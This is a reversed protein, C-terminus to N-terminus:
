PNITFDITEKEVDPYIYDIEQQIEITKQIATIIRCYQKIEGLTLAKGKREKLWKDCVQYGGIFYKWVELPAKGFYQLENIWIESRSEDHRVKGILNDGNGHFKAIPKDLEPSCLLHLDVLREGLKAMKLFLKVDKTFPIRPFDMKLFQAYRTRYSNSYLVAYIYTFIKEPIVPKIYVRALGLTIEPALNPQKIGYGIRPEFLFFSSGSHSKKPASTEQYTYLPFLYSISVAHTISHADIVSRTVFVPEIGSKDMQRSTILGLNERMMHKMVEPRPRCHFGQSKSTYYTYRVDFPRYLIPIIHKRDPGSEKIDEKAWSIKWDQSDKELKYAERLSREDLRLLRKVTQWVEEPTWHITLKDRATVIGM